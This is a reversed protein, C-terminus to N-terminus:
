KVMIRIAFVMGFKTPEFKYKIKYCTLINSVVFLGVGNSNSNNNNKPNEENEQYFLKFLTPIRSKKIPQCKNEIRLWGNKIYIKIVSDRDSYKVANSILNSFLKESAKKSILIKENKLRLDIKLNKEDILPEYERAIKRIEKSLHILQPKKLWEQYASINLIESIMKSMRDVMILSNGLYKEHNKYDGINLKMNELIIRLGALPTKLEHSASRLFTNKEKEIDSNIRELEILPKVIIRTALYSFLISFILGIALSYPLFKVTLNKADQEANKSSVFQITTQTGNKLRITREEIFIANNASTNDINSKLDLALSNDAKNESKLFIKIKDNKTYISIYKKVNTEDLGTLDKALINAKQALDNKTNKLYFHPFLIYIVLHSLILLALMISMTCIFTKTFIKANKM